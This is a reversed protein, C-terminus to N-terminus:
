LLEPQPKEEAEGNEYVQAGAKMLDQAAIRAGTAISDGEQPKMLHVGRTSRGSQKVNKVKLRLTM